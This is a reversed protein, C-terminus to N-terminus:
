ILGARGLERIARAMIVEDSFYREVRQRGAAGMEERREQSGLERIASVWEAVSKVLYGTEGHVVVDRNAGVASAVVPLGAAMYQLIKLACKGRTWPDDTLPALGIHGSTLASVETEGSWPINEVRLSPHSYQFDAIVRFTLRETTLADFVADLGKLYKGTSRSGVWVLTTEGAKSTIGARGPYRSVDVSTPLVVAPPGECASALYENGGFVLSARSVTSGFRHMRSPSATGDSNVFIADDFDFVFRRGYVLLRLFWRSFLKRQIFLWDYRRAQVLLGPKQRALALDCHHGASRLEAMLPTVRYRTVPNQIDKGIFLIRM